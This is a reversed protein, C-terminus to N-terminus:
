SPTAESPVHNLTGDQGEQTVSLEGSRSPHGKLHFTGVGM